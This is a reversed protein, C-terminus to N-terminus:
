DHIEYKTYTIITVYAEYETPIKSTIPTMHTITAPNQGPCSIIKSHTPLSWYKRAITPFISM